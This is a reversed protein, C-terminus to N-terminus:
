FNLQFSTFVTNFVKHFVLFFPASQHCFFGILLTAFFYNKSWHKPITVRLPLLGTRTIELSVGAEVEFKAIRARHECPTRKQSAGSECLFRGARVTENWSRSAWEFVKWSLRFRDPVVLNRIVRIHINVLWGVLLLFPSAKSKASSALLRCSKCSM